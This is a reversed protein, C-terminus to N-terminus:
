ALENTEANALIKYKTKRSSVTNRQNHKRKDLIGPTKEREDAKRTKTTPLVATAPNDERSEDSM